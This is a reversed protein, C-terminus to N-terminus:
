CPNLRFDTTVTPTGGSLDIRVKGLYNSGARRACRWRSIPITIPQATTTPNLSRPKFKFTFYGGCSSLTGSDLRGNRNFFDRSFRGARTGGGTVHMTLTNDPAAHSVGDELVEIDAWFSVRTCVPGHWGLEKLGVGPATAVEKGYKGQQVTADGLELFLAMEHSLSWVSFPMDPATEGFNRMDGFNLPAPPDLKTGGPQFTVMMMPSVYDPLTHPLQDVPVQTVSIVPAEGDPFKVFMGPKLTAYVSTTIPDGNADEAHPVPVDTTGVEIEEGAPDIQQWGESAPHDPDSSPILHNSLDVSTTLDLKPLYKADPIETMRGRNLWQAHVQTHVMPYRADTTSAPRGDIIMRSSDMDVDTLEFYGDAGTTARQWGLEDSGISVSVGALPRETETELIQGRVGTVGDEAVCGLGVLLAFSLSGFLLVSRHM